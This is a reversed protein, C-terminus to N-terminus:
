QLETDGEDGGEDKEHDLDAEETSYAEIEATHVLGDTRSTFERGAWFYLVQDAEIPPFTFVNVLNTNEVVYGVRQPRRTKAHRVYVGYHLSTTYLVGNGSPIPGANDEYIAIATLTEPKKFSVIAHAYKISSGTNMDRVEQWKTDQNGILGDTMRLATQPCDWPRWRITSNGGTWPVVQCNVTGRPPSGKAGGALEVADPAKGKLLNRSQFRIEAVVTEALLVPMKSTEAPDYTPRANRGEGVIRPIIVRLSLTVQKEGGTRFAMRRRAFRPGIPLRATFPLHKSKESARISVEVLTQPTLQKPDAAADLFEVLYTRGPEVALGFEVPEALLAVQAPKTPDSDAPKAPKLVALLKDTPLLNKGFGVAKRDLSELYSPEPPDPPVAAAAAPPVDGINGMQKVFQDPSTLNYPTFDISRLLRGTGTDLFVLRGIESGVLTTKGDPSFRVIGGMPVNTRWLEKGDTAFCATVGRQSSLIVGKGDPSIAAGKIRGPLHIVIDPADGPGRLYTRNSPGDADFQNNEVIVLRDSGPVPLMVDTGAVARFKGASEGTEANLLHFKGDDDVIVFRDDMLLAKGENLLLGEKNWLMKGSDTDLCFVSQNRVTGINYCDEEVGFASALLRKGNPSIGRVFVSRRYLMDEQSTRFDADNYRWLPRGAENLAVLKCKGGLYTRNLKTDQLLVSGCARIKIRGPLGHHEPVTRHVFGKRIDLLYDSDWIRVYTEEDSLPRLLGNGRYWISNGLRNAIPRKHVINGEKDLVFFSDGYSDLTLFIRNGSPSYAVDQIRAGFRDSLMDELHEPAGGRVVPGPRLKTSVQAVPGAPRVKGLYDVGAEAGAPDNSGVYLADCEGLFPDWVYHIFFKGPSPYSPSPIRRLFERLDELARNNKPSGFLVVDGDIWTRPGYEAYGCRPSDFEAKYPALDVRWAIWEGAAVRELIARDEDLWKWRLPVERVEAADLTLLRADRGREKLLAAMREAAKRYSAQCEDLLVIVRTKKRGYLFDSIQREGIIDLNEGVGREASPETPSTAVKQKAISGLILDRVVLDLEAGKSTEPVPVRLSLDPGLAAFKHFVKAGGPGVLTVEFPAPDPLSRGTADELWAAVRVAPEAPEARDLRIAAAKPERRSLWFVKGEARSFDMEVVSKGDRTEVKCPQGTLLDHVYWGPEVLLDGKRPLAVHQRWKGEVSMPVYTVNIVFCCISEKGALPSIVIEKDSTTVPIAPTDKFADLLLKERHELFNTWLHAFEWEGNPWALGWGSHVQDKDYAFGIDKGPVWEACTRDKLIIGGAKAFKAFAEKVAKLEQTGTGAVFLVKYKDLDGRLVDEQALLMGPRRLRALDHLIVSKQEPWPSSKSYYVAVDPLPDLSLFYSGFREFIRLLSEHEGTARGDDSGPLAFGDLGRGASGFAVIFQAHRGVGATAMRTKMQKRGNVRPNDMNLFAPARFESWPPRCYDTYDVCDRHSLTSYALPPYSNRGGLWFSPIGTHSTLDPRIEKADALYQGYATPLILSSYDFHAQLEVIKLEEPDTGKAKAAEVREKAKAAVWKGAEANRLAQRGDLPKSEEWYGGVTAYWNINVGAFGPVDAYKQTFLATRRRLSRLEEPLTHKPNWEEHHIMPPLQLAARRGLRALTMLGVEDGTPQLCKEIAPGGPFDAYAAFAGDLVNLVDDALPLLGPEGAGTGLGCYCNIPAGADMSVEGFPAYSMIEFDAEPERQYVFFQAPYSLISAPRVQVEYRGPALSATDLELFNTVLPAGTGTDSALVREIGAGTLVLEFKGLPVAGEPTRVTWYLEIRDGRLCGLRNRYPYVSVSARPKDAQVLILALRCEDPLERGRSSLTWVGEGLSQPLRVALLDGDKQELTLRVSEGTRSLRDLRCEHPAGQSASDTRRGLPLLRCRYEEGPRVAFQNTEFLFAAPAEVDFIVTKLPFERFTTPVTVTLLTKARKGTGLSLSVGPMENPVALEVFGSGRSSSVSLNSDGASITTGAKANLWRVGLRYTPPPPPVRYRLEADGVKSVQKAEALQVKGTADVTFSEGNLQYSKGAGSSPLYLIIRRMRAPGPEENQNKQASDPEELPKLLGKLMDMKGYSVIMPAAVSREADFARITVPWCIVEVIDEEANIRLRPDDSVPKGQRLSFRIEGPLLVHDGENLNLKVSSPRRLGPSLIMVKEGPEKLMDDESEGPAKDSESKGKWAADLLDSQYELIPTDDVKMGFPWMAAVWGGYPSHRLEQVEELPVTRGDKQTVLSITIEEALTGTCLCAFLVLEPLRAPVRAQIM